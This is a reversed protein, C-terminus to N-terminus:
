KRGGVLNDYHIEMAICHINSRHIGIDRLEADSLASLEKVTNRVAKHTKYAKIIDAIAKKVSSFDFLRSASMTLQSM